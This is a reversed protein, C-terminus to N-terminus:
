LGPAVRTIPEHWLLAERTKNCEIRAADYETRAQILAEEWHLGRLRIAARSLSMAAAVYENVLRCKEECM